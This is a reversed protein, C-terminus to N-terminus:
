MTVNQVYIADDINGTFASDTFFVEARVPKDKQNQLYANGTVKILQDKAPNNTNWAIPTKDIVANDKDYFIANM